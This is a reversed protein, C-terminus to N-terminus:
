VGERVLSSLGKGLLKWYVDGECRVPRVRSRATAAGAAPSGPLAAAEGWWAGLCRAPVQVGTEAAGAERWGQVRGRRGGGAWGERSLM